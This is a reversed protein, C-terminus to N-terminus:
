NDSNKTEYIPISLHVTYQNDTESINLNEKGGYLLTLRQRINALGIGGKDIHNDNDKPHMLNMCDFILRDDAIEMRIAIYSQYRYDVGYKFANEIFVIFLLPPIVISEIDEDSPFNLCVDVKGDPYRDHIIRIYEKLFNLEAKLSICDKASDYLMYRMLRSMEMVLEQAKRPNIEILGHISNLMNMYFHPNIQAKLHDLQAQINAAELHKKEMNLSIYRGFISIALNMGIVLVAYFMSHVFPIPFRPRPRHHRAMEPIRDQIRNFDLTDPILDHPPHHLFSNYEVVGYISLLVIISVAYIWIRHNKILQPILLFNNILFLLFLPGLGKLAKMFAIDLPVSEPNLAYDEFFHLVYAVLVIVWLVAYIWNEKNRLSLM